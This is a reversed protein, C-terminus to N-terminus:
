SYLELVVAICVLCSRGSGYFQACPASNGTLLSSVKLIQTWTSHSIAARAVLWMVLRRKELDVSKTWLQLSCSRNGAHVSVSYVSRLRTIAGKTMWKGRPGCKVVQRTKLGGVFRQFVHHSAQWILWHTFHNSGSCGSLNKMQCLVLCWVSASGTVYNFASANFSLSADSLDM